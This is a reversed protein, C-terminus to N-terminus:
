AVDSAGKGEAIFGEAREIGRATLRRGRPTRDILGREILFREVRGIGQKTERLIQMIAAEGVVFEIHKDDGSGVERAFYQRMACLYHIHTRTLGDPEVEAFTLLQEPTPPNGLAWYMDRAAMIFEEIIRPTSRCAMAITVALEDDVISEVNHRYAFSVAIRTLEPLSYAQFHPKHKFRDLVPEKLLDKDTTAAVYTLDPLIQAEGDIFAVGDELVKLLFQDGGRKEAFRHVEDIFIIDGDNLSQAAKALVHVNFPPMLEIIQKGMTRAILRAMTTKGVGPMGSALLVHDLREGRAQASAIAVRLKTKLPDQGVYDDWSEPMDVTAFDLANVVEADPDDEDDLRVRVDIVTPNPEAPAAPAPTRGAGALAGVLQRTQQDQGHRYLAYAAGANLASFDHHDHVSDGLDDDFM